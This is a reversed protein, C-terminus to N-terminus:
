FFRKDLIDFCDLPLCSFSDLIKNKMYNGLHIRDSFQFIYLFYRSVCIIIPNTKTIVADSKFMSFVLDDEISYQMPFIYVSIEGLQFFSMSCTVGGSRWCCQPEQLARGRMLIHSKELNLAGCHQRRTLEAM